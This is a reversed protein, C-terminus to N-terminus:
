LNAAARFYESRDRGLHVAALRRDSTVGAKQIERQGFPLAAAEDDINCFRIKPV